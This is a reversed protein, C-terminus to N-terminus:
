CYSAFGFIVSFPDRRLSFRPPCAGKRLAAARVIHVLVSKQREEREREAAYAEPDLIFELMLKLPLMAALYQKPLPSGPGPRKALANHAAIEFLSTKLTEARLLPGHGQPRM